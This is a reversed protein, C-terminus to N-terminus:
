WSHILGSTIVVVKDTSRGAGRYSTLGKQYSPRSDVKLDDAPGIWAAVVVITFFSFRVVDPQHHLPNISRAWSATIDM